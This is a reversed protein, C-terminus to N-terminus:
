QCKKFSIVFIECKEYRIWSNELLVEKYNKIQKKELFPAIMTVEHGDEALGKMLASTVFYHSKSPFPFVGLIRYCNVCSILLVLIIIARM